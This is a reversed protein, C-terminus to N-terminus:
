AMWCSISCANKSVHRFFLTRTEGFMRATICISDSSSNSPGIIDGSTSAANALASSLSFSFILSFSPPSAAASVASM